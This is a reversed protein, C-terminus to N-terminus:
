IFLEDVEANTIPVMEAGASGSKEIWSTTALDYQYIVGSKYEVDKTYYTKLPDVTVDATLQYESTKEYYDKGPQVSTDVSLVYTGPNLSDEEYWGEESPNEEGSPTVLTYIDVLEYYGKDVPRGEPSVVANYEFTDEGMYLFVREDVPNVPFEQGFELYRSELDFVGGLLDWKMVTDATYYTKTSDAIRDTSLTYTPSAAGDSEYWGLAKPDKDPTVSAAPVATYGTILEVAAVNEGDAVIHGAGEIFDSTTGGGTVINYVWGAKVTLLSPLHAIDEVTGKFTLAAIPAYKKDINEVVRQLGVYDLYKKVAM